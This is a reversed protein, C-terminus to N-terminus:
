RGLRKEVHQKLMVAAILYRQMPLMRNPFPWLALSKFILRLDETSGEERIAIATDYHNFAHIQRRLMFRTLGSTRYLSRNEIIAPRVKFYRMANSSLSGDVRRYVALPEPVAAFAATSFRAAVKLWLDWDEPARYVPDFGGVADFAQRHLMVSCLALACHYRLRWALDEPPTFNGDKEPGDLPIERVGSYVLVARPNEVICRRQLELKNPLFWDDADLFALWDGTSAEVARNRAVSVGRNETLRIV